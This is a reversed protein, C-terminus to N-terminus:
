HNEVKKGIALHAVHILAQVSATMGRPTMIYGFEAAATMLLGLMLGEVAELIYIYGMSPVIWLGFYRSAYAFFAAIILPIYGTRDIISKSFYLLPLGCVHAVTSALGIQTTTAHIEEDFFISTFGASFGM